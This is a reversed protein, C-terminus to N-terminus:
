GNEHRGNVIPYVSIQLNLIYVNGSYVSFSRKLVIEIYIESIKFSINFFVDPPSEFITRQFIRSSRSTICNVYLLAISADLALFERAHQKDFAQYPNM